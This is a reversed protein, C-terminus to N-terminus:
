EYRWSMLISRVSSIERESFLFYGLTTGISTSVNKMKYTFTDVFQRDYITNICCMKPVHLVNHNFLKVNQTLVKVTSEFYLGSFDKGGLGWVVKIRNVVGM